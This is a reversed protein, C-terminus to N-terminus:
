GAQDKKSVGYVKFPTPQDKACAAEIQARHKELTSVMWAPATPYQAKMAAIGQEFTTPVKSAEAPMPTLNINFTVGHFGNLQAPGVGLGEANEWVLCTASPYASHRALTVVTIADRDYDSAAPAPAANASGFAVLGAGVLLALKLRNQMNGEWTESGIVHQPIEAVERRM